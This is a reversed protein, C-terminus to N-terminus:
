IVRDTRPVLKIQVKFSHPVFMGKKGKIDPGPFLIVNYRRLVTIIFKKITMKSFFEGLCKRPGDGFTQHSISQLPTMREPNWREPFFAEPSPFIEPDYHLASTATHVSTHKPLTIGIKPLIVEETSRRWNRAAEPHMRSSEKYCKDVYPLGHNVKEYTLFEEVDKKEKEGKVSEEDTKEDKTEETEQDGEEDTKEDKTEETEQDGEEDQEKQTQILLQDIEEKAKEMAIPNRALEYVLFACSSTPPLFGAGVIETALAMKELPSLTSTLVTQLFDRDPVKDPPLSTRKAVCSQVFRHVIEPSKTLYARVMRAFNPYSRGAWFSASNTFGIIDVAAAIVEHNPNNFCDIDVDYFTRTLINLFHLTVLNFLDVTQNAHEGLWEILDDSRIRGCLKMLSGHNLVKGVTSRERQWQDGNSFIIGNKM